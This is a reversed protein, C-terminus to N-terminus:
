RNNVLFEVIGGDPAIKVWADKTPFSQHKRVIHVEWYGDYFGSYDVAVDRWGRREAERKAVAIYIPESVDRPTSCGMSLCISACMQATILAARLQHRMTYLEFRRSNGAASLIRRNKRM